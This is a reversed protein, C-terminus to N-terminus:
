SSQVGVYRVPSASRFSAFEVGSSRQDEQDRGPRVQAPPRVHSDWQDGARRRMPQTYCIGAFRSLRAIAQYLGRIRQLATEEDPEIGHYGWSNDPVRECEPMYAVGGFESLYLASANYKCGPAM